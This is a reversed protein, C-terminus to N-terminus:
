IFIIKSQFRTKILDLPHLVGSLYTAFFSAAICSLSFLGYDSQNNM